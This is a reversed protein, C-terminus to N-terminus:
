GLAYIVGRWCWILGYLSVMFSMFLRFANRVQDFNSDSFDLAADDLQPHAMSFPINIIPATTVPADIPAVFMNTLGSSFGETSLGVVDNTSSAVNVGNTNALAAALQSGVQGLGATLQDDRFTSRADMSELLAKLDAARATNNADLLKLAALTDAGNNTVATDQSALAPQNASSSSPSGVSTSALPTVGDFGPLPTDTTASGVTNVVSYSFGGEVDYQLESVEITFEEDVNATITWPEGPSLTQEETILVEGDDLAKIEVRYVKDVLSDNTVTLPDNEFAEADEEFEFVYSGSSGSVNITVGMYSNSITWPLQSGGTEVNLYRTAKWVTESKSFSGCWASDYFDIDSENAKLGEVATSAISDPDYHTIKVNRFGNAGCGQDGWTEVKVYGQGDPDNWTQTTYASLSWQAM